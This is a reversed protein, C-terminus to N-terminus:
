FRYNLYDCMEQKSLKAESSSIQENYSVVSGKISVAYGQDVLFNYQDRAVENDNYDARVTHTVVSGNKYHYTHTVPYGYEVINIYVDDGSIKASGVAGDNYIIESDDDEGHFEVSCSAVTLAALGMMFASALLFFKRKM